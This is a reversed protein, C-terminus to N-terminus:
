RRGPRRPPAPADLRLKRRSRRFARVMAAEEGREAAPMTGYYADLSADIEADHQRRLLLRLAEEIVASRTRGGSRALRDAAASLDRPLSATVRSRM